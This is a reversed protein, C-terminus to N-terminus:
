AFVFILLLPWVRGLAPLEDVAHLSIHNEGLMHARCTDEVSRSPPADAGVLCVLGKGTLDILADVSHLLRAAANALCGHRCCFSM